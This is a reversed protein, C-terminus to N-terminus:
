PNAQEHEGQMHNVVNQSDHRVVSANLIAEARKLVALTRELDLLGRHDVERYDGELVAVTMSTGQRRRPRKLKFDTGNAETMVVAHWEKWGLAQKAKDEVKIKFCLKDEELQLYRAGKWHWWFGTFGGSSNSVNGWEGEGLRQQLEMFFGTWCNSHWDAIPLTAYEGVLKELHQLRSLYDLFIDSQVGSAAGSELISLFAQRRFPYFGAEEIARYNSQDETKFYIAAILNNPFKKEAAELYRTLQNSHHKTDTKDEVVVVIEKNLRILVDIKEVQKEVEVSRYENPKPVGALELFRNLLSLATGHLAEHNKEYQPDAWSILWCIFADQSLESTAFQFLNPPM